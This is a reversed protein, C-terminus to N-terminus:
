PNRSEKSNYEYWFESGPHVPSSLIALEARLHDIQTQNLIRPGVVYGNDNFFALQNETLEWQQRREPTAECEFLDSIPGHKLSLDKAAGPHM